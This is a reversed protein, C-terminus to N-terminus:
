TRQENYAQLQPARALAPWSQRVKSASEQGKNGIPIAMSAPIVQSGGGERVGAKRGGWRVESAAPRGTPLWIRRAVSSMSRNVNLRTLSFARIAFSRWSVSKECRTRARKASHSRELLRRLPRHLARSLRSTWPASPMVPTAITCYFDRGSSARQVFNGFSRLLM